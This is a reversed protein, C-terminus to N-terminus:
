YKRPILSVPVASTSGDVNSVTGGTVNSDKASLGMFASGIAIVIQAYPNFQPYASGIAGAASVIGGLATKWNIM